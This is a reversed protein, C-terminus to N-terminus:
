NHLRNITTPIIWDLDELSEKKLKKRLLETMYIKLYIIELRFYSINNKIFKWNSSDKNFAQLEQNYKNCLSSLENIIKQSERDLLNNNLFEDILTPNNRFDRRLLNKEYQVFDVYTLNDKTSTVMENFDSLWNIGM